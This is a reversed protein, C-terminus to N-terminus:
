LQDGGARPFCCAPGSDLVRCLLSIAGSPIVHRVETWQLGREQGRRCFYVDEEDALTYISGNDSYDSSDDPSDYALAVSLQRLCTDLHVIDKAEDNEAAKSRHLGISTEDSASLWAKMKEIKASKLARRIKLDGFQPKRNLAKFAETYIPSSIDDVKFMTGLSVGQTLSPGCPITDTVSM